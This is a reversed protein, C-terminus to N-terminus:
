KSMIQYIIRSRNHLPNRRPLWYENEQNRWSNNKNALGASEDAPSARKRGKFLPKKRM